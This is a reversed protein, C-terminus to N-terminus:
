YSDENTEPRRLFYHFCNTLVQKMPKILAAGRYNVHFKAKALLGETDFEGSEFVVNVDALVKVIERLLGPRDATEIYLLSRQPGDDSIHIHTAIDIDLQAPPKIGFAQGMALLTSSEPHYQLMNSIITLRIAELLEPDTIKRGTDVRTISFRKRTIPGEVSIRSKVVNLGLETLAQMTDLLAGLRNGFSIEVVTADPDSDQDIVVIPTPLVEEEQARSGEVSPQTLSAADSVAQRFVRSPSPPAGDKWALAAAVSRSDLKIPPSCFAPSNSIKSSSPSAFCAERSANLSPVTHAILLSAM